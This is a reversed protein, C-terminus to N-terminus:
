LLFSEFGFFLCLGRWSISMWADDHGLVWYVPHLHKFSGMPTRIGWQIPIPAVVDWHETFQGNQYRLYELAKTGHPGLEVKLHVVVYDGDVLICKYILEPMKGHEKGNKESFEIISDVGTDVDVNHQIYDPHVMERTRKYNKYKFTELFLEILARCKKIEEPGHHPPQDTLQEAYIRDIEAAIEPRTM